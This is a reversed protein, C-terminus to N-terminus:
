QGFPRLTDDASRSSSVPPAATWYAYLVAAGSFLVALAVEWAVVVDSDCVEYVVDNSISEASGSSTDGVQWVWGSEMSRSAPDLDVVTGDALRQECAPDVHVWLAAAAALWLLPVVIMAVRKMWSGRPTLKVDAWFWIAALVILPLGLISLAGFLGAFGIMAAPLLMLPRRPHSLIALTAPVALLCMVVVGRPWSLGASLDGGTLGLILGALALGYGIVASVKVAMAVPAPWDAAV